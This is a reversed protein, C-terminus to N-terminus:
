ELESGAPISRRQLDCAALAEIHEPHARRERRAADDGHPDCAGGAGNLVDGGGRADICWLLKDREAVAADQRIDDTLQHSRSLSFTSHQNGNLMERDAGPM